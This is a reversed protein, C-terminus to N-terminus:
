ALFDHIVDLLHEPALQLKTCRQVIQTVATRDHSFPAVVAITVWSSAFREKILIGYTPITSLPSNLEHLLYRYKADPPETPTIAEHLDYLMDSLQFLHQLLSILEQAAPLVEPHLSPLEMLIQDFCSGGVGDSGEIGAILEAPSIGLKKALEELSDARPSTTGKLYGYLTTRPIDLDKAFEM